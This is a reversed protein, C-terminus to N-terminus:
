HSSEINCDKIASYKTVKAARKINYLASDMYM